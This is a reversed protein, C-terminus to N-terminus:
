KAKNLSSVLTCNKVAILETLDPFKTEEECKAKLCPMYIEKKIFDEEKIIYVSEGGLLCKGLM